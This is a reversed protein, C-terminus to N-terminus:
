VDAKFEATSNSTTCTVFTENTKLDLIGFPKVAYKFITDHDLGLIDMWTMGNDSFKGIKKTAKDDISITATEDNNEEVDELYNNVNEFIADTEPVKDIVECKPIKHYKYNMESLINVITNYCAFKPPYNFNLVLEDIISNPDLTIYLNDNKFHSDVIKYNEIVQEIDNKLNIYKDTIKKRGRFEIKQQIYGNVFFEYCQKVKRFCSEIAIAVPTISRKGLDAVLSGIAYDREPGISMKKISEIRNKHFKEIIKSISM